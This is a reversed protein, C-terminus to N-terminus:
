PFLTLEGKLYQMLQHSRQLNVTLVTSINHEASWLRWQTRDTSSSVDIHVKQATQRIAIICAQIVNCLTLVSKWFFGESDTRISSCSTLWSSHHMSPVCSSLFISFPPRPRRNVKSKLRHRISPPPPYLTFDSKYQADQWRFFFHLLTYPYQASWTQFFPVSYYLLPNLSMRASLNLNNLEYLLNCVHTISIRLTVDTNPSWLQM